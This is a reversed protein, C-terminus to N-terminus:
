GKLLYSILRRLGNISIQVLYEADCSEFLSTSKEYNNTDFGVGEQLVEGLLPDAKVELLFELEQQHAELPDVELQKPDLHSIIELLSHLEEEQHDSETVIKEPQIVLDCMLIEEELIPIKQVTRKQFSTKRVTAFEPEIKIM